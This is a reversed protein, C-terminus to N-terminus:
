KRYKSQFSSKMEEVKLVTFFDVCHFEYDWAPHLSVKAGAKLYAQLLSPLKEVKAQNILHLGNRRVYEERPLITYRDLTAQQNALWSVVQAVARGDMTNVSSCGFVYDAQTADIYECVGRWLLSIVVGNRYDRHICARSLELKTGPEQLFSDIHFESFSYLSDSYSTSILRYTGVIKNLQQDIIVLHDALPDLPEWDIGVPVLKGQFEKHFIQYRFQLVAELEEETKITKVLYRSREFRISVKQQFSRTFPRYKSPIKGRFAFVMRLPDFHQKEIYIALPNGSVM